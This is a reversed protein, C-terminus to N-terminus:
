GREAASGIVPRRRGRRGVAPPPDDNMVIGSRKWSSLLNLMAEPTAVNRWYRARVAEAASRCPADGALLERYEVWAAIQRLREAATEGVPKRGRRRKVKGRLIGCLQARLFAPAVVEPNAMIITALEDADVPEDPTLKAEYDALSWSRREEERALRAATPRGTPKEVEARLVRLLRDRLVWSGVTEPNAAIVGALDAGTVPRRQPLRRQLLRRLLSPLTTPGFLDYPTLCCGDAFSLVAAPTRHATRM